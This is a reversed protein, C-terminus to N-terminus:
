WGFAHQDDMWDGRAIMVQRIIDRAVGYGGQVPSIYRAIEKIEVAADAPAVSLGVAKMCPMDPIDDGVYVAEDANIGHRELLDNLLPLKLSSKLHIESIGLAKYRTAIAPTDAGTIIAILYGPKVAVMRRPIGDSDMPVTSPSLVGDVDFVFAKIKNLDFDTRSM